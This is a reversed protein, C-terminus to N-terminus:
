RRPIPPSSETYVLDVVDIDLGKEAMKRLSMAIDALLFSYIEQWVLEDDNEITHKFDKHLGKLAGEKMDEKRFLKRTLPDSMGNRREM